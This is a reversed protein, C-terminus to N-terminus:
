RAILYPMGLVLEKQRVFCMKILIHIVHNGRWGKFLKRCSPLLWPETLCKVRSIYSISPFSHFLRIQNVHLVDDDQGIQALTSCIVGELGLKPQLFSFSAFIWMKGLKPWHGHLFRTIISCSTWPTYSNPGYHKNTVSRCLWYYVTRAFVIGTNQKFLYGRNKVKYLYKHKKYKM